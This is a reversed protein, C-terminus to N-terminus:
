IEKEDFSMALQEFQDKMRKCREWLFKIENVIADIEAQKASPKNTLFQPKGQTYIHNPREKSISKRDPASPLTINESINCKKLKSMQHNHLLLDNFSKMEAQDQLAV